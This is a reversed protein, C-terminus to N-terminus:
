SGGSIGLESYVNVYGDNHTGFLVCHEFLSLGSCAAVVDLPYVESFM